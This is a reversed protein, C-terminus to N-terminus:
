DIRFFGYLDICKTSLKTGISWHHLHICNKSLKGSSM